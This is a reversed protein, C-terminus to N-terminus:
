SYLFRLFLVKIFTFKLNFNQHTFETVYLKLFIHQRVLYLINKMNTLYNM